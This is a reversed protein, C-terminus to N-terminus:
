PKFTFLVCMNKEYVPIICESYGDDNIDAVDIGGVTDEFNKSWTLSYSLEKSADSPSFLYAYEAGDGALFIHFREKKNLNPHFLKASGPAAQNFGFKLVPFNDYIISKKWTGSRLNGTLSYFFLAGKVGASNGQHNTALIELNGQGDLDALKVDFLQGANTDITKVKVQGNVFSNKADESYILNLKSIFFGAAVIEFRGDKDIDKVDFFVDCASEMIVVGDFNQKKENFIFAVLETKTEGFLTPKYTRCSLIDERGDANLDALLARHYFWNINEEHKFSLNIPSYKTVESRDQKTFPYYFLDGKGKTPVLFGSPVVVGGYADTKNNIISHDFFSAENPWELNDNNLTQVTSFDLSSINPLYFVNDSSYPM